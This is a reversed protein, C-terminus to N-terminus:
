RYGQTRLPLRTNKVSAKHGRRLTLKSILSALWVTLTSATRTLVPCYRTRDSFEGGRVNLPDRRNESSGVSQPQLLGYCDPCFSVRKMLM